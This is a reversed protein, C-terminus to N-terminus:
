LCAPAIRRAWSLCSCFTASRCAAAMLRALARPSIGCTPRVQSVDHGCAQLTQLVLPLPLRPFMSQVTDLKEQAGALAAFDRVAASEATLECICGATAQCISLSHFSSHSLLCQWSSLPSKQHNHWLNLQLLLM